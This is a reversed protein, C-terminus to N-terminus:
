DVPDHSNAHYEFLEDVPDHSNAHYELLEDVPDHSNAHYELLEDVPDHSNAHYEFLEDVPDHSNTHYEFLEDVPDHSNAHYEFLEDVPDHSDSFQTTTRQVVQESSTGASQQFLSRRISEREAKSPISAISKKPSLVSDTERLIELSPQAIRSQNKQMLSHRVSKQPEYIM